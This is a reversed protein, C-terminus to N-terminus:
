LCFFNTHTWNHGNVRIITIDQEQNLDIFIQKDGINISIKRSVKEPMVEDWKKIKYEMSFKRLDILNRSELFELRKFNESELLKVILIKKNESNLSELDKIDNVKFENM